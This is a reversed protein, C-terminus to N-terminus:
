PAAAADVPREGSPRAAAFAPRLPRAGARGGGHQRSAVRFNHAHPQPLFLWDEGLPMVPAIIRMYWLTAGSSAAGYMSGAFRMSGRVKSRWIANSAEQPRTTASEASTSSIAASRVGGAPVTHM